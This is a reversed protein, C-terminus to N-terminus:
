RKSAAVAARSTTIICVVQTSALSETTADVFFKWEIIFLLLARLSGRPRITSLVPGNDLIERWLVNNGLPSSFVDIIEVNCRSRPPLSSSSSSSPLLMLLSSSFISADRTSSSVSTLLLLLFSPLKHALKNPVFDDSLLDESAGDEEESSSDPEKSIVIFVVGSPLDM